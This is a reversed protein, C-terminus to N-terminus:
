IAFINWTSCRSDKKKFVQKPLFRVHFSPANASAPSDEQLFVTNHEVHFM